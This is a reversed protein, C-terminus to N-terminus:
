KKVRKRYVIPGKVHPKLGAQEAREITKLIREKEREKRHFLRRRKFSKLFRSPSEDDLIIMEKPNMRGRKTLKFFLNEMEKSPGIEGTVPHKVRGRMMKKARRYAMPNRKQIIGIVKKSEARFQPFKKLNEYYLVDQVDMSVKVPRVLSRKIKRKHKHITTRGRKTRRKHKHVNVKTKM